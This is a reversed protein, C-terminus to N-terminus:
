YGQLELSVSSCNRQKVVDSDNPCTSVSIGLLTSLKPMEDFDELISADLSKHDHDTFTDREPSVLPLVSAGEPTTDHRTRKQPVADDQGPSPRALPKSTTAPSHSGSPLTLNSSKDM